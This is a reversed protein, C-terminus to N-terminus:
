KVPLGLAKRAAAIDEASEAAAKEEKTIASGIVSGMAVSKIGEYPKLFELDHGVKAGLAVLKRCNDASLGGKGLEDVKAKWAQAANVVKQGAFAEFATKLAAIDQRLGMMVEGGEPAEPIEPAESEPAVQESSGLLIDLVVPLMADITEETVANDGDVPLATGPKIRDLLRNIGDRVIEFTMKKTEKPPSSPGGLAMQVFPSQGPVTAHAVCAIHLLSPGEWVHGTGDRWDWVIKPSCQRHRKQLVEKTDDDVYVSFFLSENDTWLEGIDAISNAEKTDGSGCNEVITLGHDWTLPHPIGAAAHESFRAVIKQLDDPSFTIFQPEGNADNGVFWKGVRLTDKCLRVRGPIQKAPPANAITSRFPLQTQIEVSGNDPRTQM